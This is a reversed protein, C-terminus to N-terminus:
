QPNAQQAPALSLDYRQWGGNRYYMWYNGGSWYWWQGKQYVLRWSNVNQTNSPRSLPSAQSAAPVRGAATNVQPVGGPVTASAGMSAAGINSGAGAASRLNNAARGTPLPSSTTAPLAPSGGAPSTLFAGAAPNFASGPAAPNVPTTLFAGAAPNFATPALASPPAAFFAGANPNFMSNAQIQSTGPGAGAAGAPGGGFEPGAGPVGMAGNGFAPGAGTVGAPGGGSAPGAGAVGAGGRQALSAPVLAACITFTSAVAFCKM